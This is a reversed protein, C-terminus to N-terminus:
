SVALSHESTVAYWLVSSGQAFPYHIAKVNLINTFHVLIDWVPPM